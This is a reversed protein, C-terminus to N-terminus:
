QGFALCDDLIGHLAERDATAGGDWGWNQDDNAADNAHNGNVGGGNAIRLGGVRKRGDECDDLEELGGDELTGFSGGTVRSMITPVQGLGIDGVELGSRLDETSLPPRNQAEKIEVPLLGTGLGCYLSGSLLDHEERICQRKFRHTSIGNGSGSPLNSRTRNYIASLVEKIYHETAAAVFEACQPGAGNALSEEYCIPIMRGSIADADPFEGTEAALPQSYRKRIELDWDSSM